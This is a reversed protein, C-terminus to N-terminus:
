KQRHLNRQIGNYMPNCKAFAEFGNLETQHHQKKENTHQRYSRSIKETCMLQQMLHEYKATLQTITLKRKDQQWIKAICIESLDDYLCVFRTLRYSIVDFYVNWCGSSIVDKSQLLQGLSNNWLKGAIRICRISLHCIFAPFAHNSLLAHWLLFVVSRSM